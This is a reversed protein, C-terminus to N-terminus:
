VAAFHLSRCGGMVILIENLIINFSFLDGTGEQFIMRKMYLEFVLLVLCCM